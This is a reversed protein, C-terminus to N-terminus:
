VVQEVITPLGPRDLQFLENLEARPARLSLTASDGGAFALRLHRQPVYDVSAVRKGILAVLADCWGPARCAVTGSATKVEVACYVTLTIEQFILQLYDHVFVVQSLPEAEDFVNAILM